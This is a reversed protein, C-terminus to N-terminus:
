ASEKRLAFGMTDRSGRIYELSNKYHPLNSVPFEAAHFSKQAWSYLTAKEPDLISLYFWENEIEHHIEPLDKLVTQVLALPAEILVKLRVPRHIETMQLPLGLLLDSMYGNMVGNLGNINHPIKTDCGYGQKDVWSFYYELNIGTCVPIVMNLVSKLLHGDPDQRFNYSCLFARRDMFLNRTLDRPGIVLYANTAHGYEPRVQDLSLSRRVMGMKARESNKSLSYDLFRRNRELANRQAALKFVDMCKKLDSSIVAPLDMFGVDDSSTNHYAGVFRTQSSISIGLTALQSRIEPCNALESFLRANPWGRGGACAGCDHAAEHPNNLSTSGHGVLFFYPVEITKLGAALLTDAMSQVLRKQSDVDQSEFVFQTKLQTIFRKVLRNKVAEYRLPFFLRFFLGGLIFPSIFLTVFVGWLPHLLAREIGLILRGARNLWPDLNSVSAVETVRVFPTQPAPCLKRVQSRRLGQFEIALGFHGATAETRAQPECEELHRRFSEEREDLCCLAIFVPSSLEKEVALRCIKHHALISQIFDRESKQDLAKQYLKRKFFNHFTLFLEFMPLLEEEKIQLLDRASNQKSLLHRIIGRLNNEYIKQVPECSPLKKGIAEIKHAHSHYNEQIKSLECLVLLTSFDLFGAHQNKKDLSLILAGWGKFRYLISFLYHKWEQPPIGLSTLIDLLIRSAREEEYKKGYLEINKSLLKRWTRALPPAQRFYTFFFELLGANKKPLNVQSVGRDYYASLCRLVLGHTEDLAEHFIRSKEPFFTRKVLGPIWINLKGEKSMRLLTRNWKHFVNEADRFKRAYIQFFSFQFPARESMFIEVLESGLLVSSGLRFEKNLIDPIEEEVIKFLDRKEIEGSTLWAQYDMLKPYPINGYLEWAELVAVDFSRDTFAHLTNHHIFDELRGQRPLYRLCYDLALALADSRETQSETSFM